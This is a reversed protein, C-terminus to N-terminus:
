KEHLAAVLWRMVEEAFVGTHTPRNNVFIDYRMAVGRQQVAFDVKIRKGRHQFDIIPKAAMAIM